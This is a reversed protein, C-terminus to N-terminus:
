AAAPELKKLTDYLFTTALRIRAARRLDPHTLVWLSAKHHIPEELPHQTVSGLIKGLFVPLLAACAGSEVARALNLMSNSRLMVQEHPVMREMWAATPAPGAGAEWAGWPWDARDTHGFTAPAFLGTEVDFVKRGVLTEQPTRTARVAIDAERRTLNLPRNDVVLEVRIRPYRGHFTAQAPILAYHMLDDPATVRVTGAPELDRGSLRLLAADAAGNMTRAAELLEEGAATLNM